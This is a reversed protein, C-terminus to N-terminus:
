GPDPSWGIIVLLTVFRHKLFLSFKLNTGVTPIAPLVQNNANVVWYKLICLQTPDNVAPYWIPWVICDVRKIGVNSVVVFNTIIVIQIDRFMRQLPSLLHSIICSYQMFFKLCCINQINTLIAENLM